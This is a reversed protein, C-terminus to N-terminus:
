CSPRSLSCGVRKSASSGRVKEGGFKKLRKEIVSGQFKGNLRAQVLEVCEKKKLKKNKGLMKPLYKHDCIFAFRKLHSM